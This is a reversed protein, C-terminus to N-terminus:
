FRRTNSRLFRCTERPVEENVDTIIIEEFSGPILELFYLIAKAMQEGAESPSLGGVGTGLGPTVLRKVNLDFAKTLAALMAKYTNEPPIRMAPEGMTPAHIIYRYPLRGAHTVIAKGVPVPAFKLAEREISGGGRRKIHGAIGGGMVLRSNAPNVLADGEISLVDGVVCKVTVDHIRITGVVRVDKVMLIRDKM